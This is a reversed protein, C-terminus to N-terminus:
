FSWNQAFGLIRLSAVHM